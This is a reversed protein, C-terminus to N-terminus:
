EQDRGRGGEENSNPIVLEVRNMSAGFNSTPSDSLRKAGSTLPQAWNNAHNDKRRKTLPEIRVSFHPWKPALTRGESTNFSLNQTPWVAHGALYFTTEKGGPTPLYGKTALICIDPGQRLTELM